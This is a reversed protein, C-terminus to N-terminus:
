FVERGLSASWRRWTEKEGLRGLFAGTKPGADGRARALFCNASSLKATLMGVGRGERRVAEVGAFGSTRKCGAVGEVAVDLNERIFLPSVLSISSSFAFSSLCAAFLCFCRAADAITGNSCFGNLFSASGMGRRIGAGLFDEMFSVEFLRIWKGSTVPKVLATSDGM